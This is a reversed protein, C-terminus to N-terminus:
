AESLKGAKEIYAKFREDERVCDFWKWSQMYNLIDDQSQWFLWMYPCWTKSGDPMYIEVQNESNADYKNIKAGGFLDSKGFSLLTGCPIKIWRQYLSFAMDLEAFGEDLRGCGILAGAKKASIDAYTGLLVDPIEGNTSFADMIRMRSNMLMVTQKPSDFLMDNDPSFYKMYDRGLFHLLIMLNNAASQNQYAVSNHATWHREELIEDTQKSYLAPCKSQWSKQWEEDTCNVSYIEIANQRTYEWTCENLIKECVEKLLEHNEKRTDTNEHIAFALSECIEFNNPYKRYYEKALALSDPSSHAGYKKKFSEIDAQKATEDNGILEDVTIHFLNAIQPLLVIDPYGGREWNSVAQASVGLKSALEEQTLKNKQRERFIVESIKLEFMIPEEM